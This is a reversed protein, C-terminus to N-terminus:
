FLRSYKTTKSSFKKNKSQKEFYSDNDYKGEKWAKAVSKSTQAKSEETRKRLKNACSISCIQKTIPKNERHRVTFEKGCIVCHLKEKIIKGGNLNEEREIFKARSLEKSKLNKYAYGLHKWRHHNAKAQFTEFEIGCEECKYM